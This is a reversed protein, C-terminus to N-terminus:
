KKKKRRREKNFDRQKQRELSLVSRQLGHILDCIEQKSAQGNKRVFDILRLCVGKVINRDKKAESQLKRQINCSMIKDRSVAPRGAEFGPGSAMFRRAKRATDQRIEEPNEQPILKLM